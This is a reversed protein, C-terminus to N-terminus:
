PAVGQLETGHGSWTAFSASSKVQLTDGPELVLFLNNVVVAVKTPVVQRFIYNAWASGNIFVDCTISSASDSAVSINKIIATVGSPCTYLTQPSATTTIPGFLRATRVAM